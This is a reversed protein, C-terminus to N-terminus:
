KHRKKKTSQKLAEWGAMQENYIQEDSKLEQPDTYMLTLWDLLEPYSMFDLGYDRTPWGLFRSLQM